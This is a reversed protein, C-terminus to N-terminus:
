GVRALDGRKLKGARSRLSAMLRSDIVAPKDIGQDDRTCGKHMHSQLPSAGTATAQQDAPKAPVIENPKRIMARGATRKSAPSSSSRQGVAPEGYRAVYLDTIDSLGAQPAPLLGLYSVNRRKRRGASCPAQGFVMIDETVPAAINLLLRVGGEGNTIVLQGVPNLGFRCPCPADVAHGPRHLVRALQDGPFDAPRHATRIPRSAQREPSQARGRVMGRAPGRHAVAGPAPSAALLAGCTTAPPPGHTRQSSLQRQCQGYRSIFAVINGRKGSSPESLVKM